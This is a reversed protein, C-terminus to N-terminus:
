KKPIAAGAPKEDPKNGLVKKSAGEFDGAKVISIKAPDIYKKMMANIQEPTLSKVKNEFDEEWKFTRKYALHDELKGALYGDQARTVQNNQLWGKKAEEVEKATFGEKIVKDLEERFAAELRAANEPAYIAYAGWGGIKDEPQAYAFSGIGYSLGEKQRIRTALRSNLFGGGLIENGLLLAPYDPDSDGIPLKVQAFFMANAKDPTEISKNMATIDRYTETLRSYAKPSKWDALSQKVLDKIAKEDFDGSIAVNANSAGYFDKHFQKLQDPTIAKLEAIQEDFTAKYRPDGKPFPNLYRELEMSALAQPDSKQEEIQALQEQRLKEWEDAPFTPEKVFETVLKIVAPLNERITEINVICKEASGYTYVRAKLKDLEDQLQQRTRSGAGRMLMQGVQSGIMGKNQLGSLDGFRLVVQANVAGGRTKKSVMAIKVGGLTERQTRSEINMPSPDFVEGQALAEGGKYDKLLAALDPAEPIEAREPNKTPIFEGLTRNAPKLYHQAVRQVDAPTVKKIQDRTYFFLRWDGQAIYESLNIGFREPSNLTLDINKALKTKMREVEEDTPTYKAFDDLTKVFIQKASDLSSELRVGANYVAVGPEKLAFNYGYVYSAKKSEVLAKYLKGSPEDTLLETMVEVAPFDAHPGPPIHYVACLAQVDGTRRLTVLREGDQTPEATYTPQLVRKPKPIVGFKQNILQLTKAEDFKGAVLLIANDPQYYNRYFAQLRDIPVREIDARAGITSNGYNHWLYASSLTRQMLIRSPYNEGSEFENRVVTMESELDKKAIYSNVMRDAEMDLAWELNEDTAQFVEFYNTRDLWTTGNPDCGHATLEQAINPHRSTGKFVLHELLHAMGTEGYNEHRSGVLYTINVTITQKSRDPFLLVKLGNSLRYETIGEVSTVKVPAPLKASGSPTTKATSKTAKPATQASVPITLLAALALVLCPKRHQM